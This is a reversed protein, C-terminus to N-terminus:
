PKNGFDGPVIAACVSLPARHLTWVIGPGKNELDGGVAGGAIERLAVLKFWMWFIVRSVTGEHLCTVDVHKM